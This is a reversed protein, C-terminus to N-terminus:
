FAGNMCTGISIFLVLFVVSTLILMKIVSKIGKAMYLYGGLLVFFWWLVFLSVFNSFFSMWSSFIGQDPLILNVGFLIVVTVLSFVGITILSGTLFKLLNSRTKEKMLKRGNLM